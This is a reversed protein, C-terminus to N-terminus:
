TTEDLVDFNSRKYRAAGLGYGLERKKTIEWMALVGIAPFLPEGGANRPAM